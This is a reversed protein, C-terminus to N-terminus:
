SNEKKQDKQRKLQIASVVIWFINLLYFAALMWSARNPDVSEMPAPKMLLLTGLLLFTAVMFTASYDLPIDIYPDEELVKRSSPYALEMLHFNLLSGSIILLLNFDAENRRLLYIAPAASSSFYQHHKDVFVAIVMVVLFISYTWRAVKKYDEPNPTKLAFFFSDVM